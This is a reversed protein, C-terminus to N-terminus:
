AIWAPADAVFETLTSALEDVSPRDSSRPALASDVVAALRPPLGRRRKQIREARSQTQPYHGGSTLDFPLGGSMAEYLVMGLGWVDTTPGLTGRLAQEPAMYQRTGEGRGPGPARAIDFDLLKALGVEVVINSPKLDLHLLGRGHLYAVASCLQIGLIAADALALRRRYSHELVHSLTAGTLTELVVMPLPTRLVEYARVVHPHRLNLLLNGERLVRARAGARDACDPRLTKIVCRCRREISWCDYVDLLSGRRLHGLVRYRSALEAAAPLVYSADHDVSKM